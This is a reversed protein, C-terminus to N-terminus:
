GNFSLIRNADLYINRRTNVATTSDKYNEDFTPSFGYLSQETTCSYVPSIYNNDECNLPSPIKSSNTTKKAGAIDFIPRIALNLNHDKLKLEGTESTLETDLNLPSNGAWYGSTNAQPCLALDSQV